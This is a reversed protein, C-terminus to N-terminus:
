GTKSLVGDVERLLGKEKLRKVTQNFTNRDVDDLTGRLATRPTGKTTVARLIRDAVSAPAEGSGEGKNAIPM